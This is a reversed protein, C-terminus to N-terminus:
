RRDGERPPNIWLVEVGKRRAVHDVYAMKQHDIAGPGDHRALRAGDVGGSSACGSLAVAAAALALRMTMQMAKM